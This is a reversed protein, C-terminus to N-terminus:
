NEDTHKEKLWKVIGTYSYTPSINYKCEKTKYDIEVCDRKCFQCGIVGHEFLFKAKEETPLGCFWEENTQIPVVM